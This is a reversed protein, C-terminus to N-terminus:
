CFRRVAFRMIKVQCGDTIVLKIHRRVNLDTILTCNLQAAPDIYRDPM